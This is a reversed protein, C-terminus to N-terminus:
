LSKLLGNFDNLWLLFTLSLMWGASIRFSWGSRCFALLIMAPAFLRSINAFNLWYEEASAMSILGLNLLLGALIFRDMWGNQKRAAELLRYACFVIMWMLGILLLGRGSILRPRSQIFEIVGAFPIQIKGAAGQGGFFDAYWYWSFALVGALLLAVSVNWRFFVLQRLTANSNGSRQRRILSISSLVFALGMSLGILFMTEKSLLSLLMLVAGVPLRFRRCLGPFRGRSEAPALGSPLFLLICIVALSLALPEALNLGFSLLSIPNLGFLWGAETRAAFLVWSVLLHSVLLLIPMGYSLAKAGFLYLWGTLLPFGIRPLRFGLSDVVMVRSSHHAQIGDLSVLEFDGYLWAAMYYYFQGDYGGTPFVSANEPIAAANLGAFCVNDPICGFGILAEAGGFRASRLAAYSLFVSAVTLLFLYKNRM